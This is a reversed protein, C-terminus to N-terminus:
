LTNNIKLTPIKELDEKKFTIEQLGLGFVRDLFLIKKDSVQKNAKFAVIINNHNLAGYNREFHYLSSVLTDGNEILIIDKDFEDLFYQLRWENEQQQAPINNLINGTTKSQVKIKFYQLGEKREKIAEYEKKTLEKGKSEKAIMYDLPEYQVEWIFAENEVKQNLGNSSEVVWDHLQKGTYDTQCTVFLM